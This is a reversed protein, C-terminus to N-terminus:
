GVPQSDETGRVDLVSRVMLIEAPEDGPAAAVEFGTAHYSRIARANTRRVSLRVQRAGTGSAWACVAEILQAAVGSGRHSADVWMSILEAGDDGVTLASAQGVAVGNDEAIVNFPVANLRTRWADETADVWDALSSGFAEPASRLATLRLERWLVWDDPSVVRLIVVRLTGSRQSRLRFIDAM